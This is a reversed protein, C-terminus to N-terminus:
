VIKQTHLHYSNSRILLEFTAVNKKREFIEPRMEFM